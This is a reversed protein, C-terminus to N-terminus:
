PAPEEAADITGIVEYESYLAYLKETFEDAKEVPIGTYLPDRTIWVVFPLLYSAKVIDEETPTPEPTPEPASVWNTEGVNIQVYLKIATSDSFTIIIVFRHQAESLGVYNPVYETGDPKNLVLGPEGDARPHDGGLCFPAQSETHTSQLTSNFFSVKRIPFDGEENVAVIVLKQAQAATINYQHFDDQITSAPQLGGDLTHVIVKAM